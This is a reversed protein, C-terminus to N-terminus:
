KLSALYTALAQLDQGQIKNQYAPMFGKPNHSKPNKIEAELWAVTHKPDAGTRTLDPGVSVGTGAIVHCDSCKNDAYVKKGLTVNDADMKMLPAIPAPNAGIVSSEATNAPKGNPPANQSQLPAACGVTILLMGCVIGGVVKLLAMRNLTTIM